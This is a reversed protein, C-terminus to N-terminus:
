SSKCRLICACFDSGVQLVQPLDWHYITVAPTINNALLLKVLNVYWNVGPMNIPSGKVGGPIIRTWAVSFRHEHLATFM